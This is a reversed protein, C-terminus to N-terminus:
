SQHSCLPDNRGRPWLVFHGLVAGCPWVLLVYVTNPRYRYKPPRNPRNILPPRFVVDSAQLPKSNTDQNCM